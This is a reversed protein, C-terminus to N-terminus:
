KPKVTECVPDPALPSGRFVRAAERCGGACPYCLQCFSCTFFNSSIRQYTTNCSVIVINTLHFMRFIKSFIVNICFVLM